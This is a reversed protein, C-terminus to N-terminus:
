KHPWANEFNYRAVETKSPTPSDKLEGKSLSGGQVDAAEGETVDLDEVSPEDKSRDDNM